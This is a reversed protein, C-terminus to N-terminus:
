DRRQGLLFGVVCGLVAAFAISSWTNEHVYDDTVRSVNRATDSAKKQFDQLRNTMDKTNM